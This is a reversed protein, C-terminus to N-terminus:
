STAVGRDCAVEAFTQGTGELMAVKGTAKQWCMVTGDVFTPTIECAYCRRGIKEAALIQSGSGNFPELVIAGPKTHQEM